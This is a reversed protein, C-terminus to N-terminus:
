RGMAEENLRAIEKRTARRVAESQNLNYAQDCVAWAQEHPQGQAKYRLYQIAFNHAQDQMKM